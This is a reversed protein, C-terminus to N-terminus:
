ILLTLSSFPPTVVSKLLICLVDTSLNHFNSSDLLIPYMELHMHGVLILSLLYLCNLLDMVFM